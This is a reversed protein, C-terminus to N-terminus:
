VHGRAKEPDMEALAAAANNFAALVWESPENEWELPGLGGLDRRAYGVLAGAGAPMLPKTLAMRMAAANTASGILEYQQRLAAIGTRRDWEVGAREAAVLREKADQYEREIQESDAGPRLLLEDRANEIEYGSIASWHRWGILSYPRMGHMQRAQYKADDLELYLRLKEESLREHEAILAFIPDVVPGRSSAETAGVALASAGAVGFGLKALVSRRNLNPLGADAASVTINQMTTQEM